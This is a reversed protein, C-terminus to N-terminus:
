EISLSSLARGKAGDAFVVTVEVGSLHSSPRHLEPSFAIEYQTEVHEETQQTVM